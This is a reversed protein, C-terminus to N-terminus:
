KLAEMMREVNLYMLDAYTPTLEPSGIPDLRVVPVDLANAVVTASREEHRGHVLVARINDQRGAEILRSIERPGPEKGPVAEIVGILNLGYRKLFYSFFPHSIMVNQNKITRMQTKIEKHLERLEAAFFHQNQRFIACNRPDVECLRATIKDLMAYVTLPDTWFHPDVTNKQSDLYLISSDPIMRQLNILNESPASLAWDDLNAGGIIFARADAVARADSPKIEFTHPSAGPPLLAAIKDSAPLLPGIITKFPYITTTYHNQAILISASLLIGTILSICLSRNM